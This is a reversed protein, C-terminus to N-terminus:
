GDARDVAKSRSPRAPRWARVWDVDFVKPYPGPPADEARARADPFAYVNLMLQMPYDPAVSVVRVLEDDIFFRVRDPLWEASYTHPERADIAVDVQAVDDRLRPDGFAKVGLGVRTRDAGIDRGFVEMLCIEGSREPADEFGILWLACLVSPDPNARARVEVIGYRPLCLRREPQPERVVLDPRFRHQGVPSGAPGSFSGTQLNSVRLGGNWEPAWAPQDADIRLRLGRGGTAGGVEYRAASRESTSWHPLYQPLWTTRDLEPADFREDLDLVYGTRDLRAPDQTTSRPFGTRRNTSPRNAKSM